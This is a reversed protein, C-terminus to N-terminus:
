GKMSDRKAGGISGLQGLHQTLPNQVLEKAPPESFSGRASAKSYQQVMGSGRAPPVITPQSDRKAGGISGLQGLHRTFHNPALATETPAMTLSGRAGGKSYRAVPSPAAKSKRSDGEDGRAPMPVSELTECRSSSSSPGNGATDTNSERGATRDPASAVAQAHEPPSEAEAPVTAETPASEDVVTGLPCDEEDDDDSDKELEAAAMAAAIQSGKQSRKELSAEQEASGELGPVAVVATRVRNQRGVSADENFIATASVMGAAAELNRLAAEAKAQVLVSDESQRRAEREDASRRTWIDYTEGKEAPNYAVYLDPDVDESGDATKVKVMPPAVNMDDMDYALWPDVEDSWSIAKKSRNRAKDKVAGKFTPPEFELDHMDYSMWPDVEFADDAASTTTATPAQSLTPDMIDYSLWPDVEEEGADDVKFSVAKSLAPKKKDGQSAVAAVEQSVSRSSRAVDAFSGTSSPAFSASFSSTGAGLAFSGRGDAVPVYGESSQTKAMDPDDVDYCLWPDVEDTLKISPARVQPEEDDVVAPVSSVHGGTGWPALM